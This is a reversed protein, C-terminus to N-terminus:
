KVIAKIIVNIIGKLGKEIKQPKVIEDKIEQLLVVPKPGGFSVQKGFDRIISPDIKM